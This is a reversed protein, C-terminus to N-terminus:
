SLDIQQNIMDVQDMTFMEVEGIRAGTDLAISFLAMDRVYRWNDTGVQRITDFLTRIDSQSPAKPLPRPAGPSDICDLPNDVIFKANELWNFFSRLARYYNDKTYDSLGDLSEFFILCHHPAPPWNSDLHTITNQYYKLVNQYWEVTRPKRMIQKMKVFLDVCYDLQNDVVVFTYEKM